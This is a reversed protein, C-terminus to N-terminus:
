LVWKIAFSVINYNTGDRGDMKGSRTVRSVILFNGAIVVPPSGAEYMQINKHGGEDDILCDCVIDTLQALRVQEEDQRTVCVVNVTASSLPRLREDGANVVIWETVTNDWPDPNVFSPDFSLPIGKSVEINDIFFKKISVDINESKGRSNM